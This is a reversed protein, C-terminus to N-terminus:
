ELVIIDEKLKFGHARLVIMGEYMNNITVITDKEIIWENSNSPHKRIMKKGDYFFNIVMLDDKYSREELGLYEPMFLIDKLQLGERLQKLVEQNYKYWMYDMGPFPNRKLNRYSRYSRVCKPPKFSEKQKM